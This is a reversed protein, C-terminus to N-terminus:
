KFSQFHCDFECAKSSLFDNTSWRFYNDEWMKYHAMNCFLSKPFPKAQFHCNSSNNISAEDLDSDDSHKLHPSSYSRSLCRKASASHRSEHFKFPKVKSTLKIASNLKALQNRSSWIFSFHNWFIETLTSYNTMFVQAGSRGDSQRVASNEVHHPHGQHPRTEHCSGGVAAQRAHHRQLVQKGGGAGEPIQTGRDPKTDPQHVQQPLEEVLEVNRLWGPRKISAVATTKPMAVRRSEHAPPINGVVLSVSQSKRAKPLNNVRIGDAM